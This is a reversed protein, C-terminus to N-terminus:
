NRIELGWEMKSEKDRRHVKLRMLDSWGEKGIGDPNPVGCTPHQDGENQFDELKKQFIITEYNFIIGTLPFSIEQFSNSLYRKIGGTVM